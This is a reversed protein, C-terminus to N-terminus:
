SHRSDQDKHEADVKTRAEGSTKDVLIYHLDEQSINFEEISMGVSSSTAMQEMDQEPM